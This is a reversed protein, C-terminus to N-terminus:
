WPYSNHAFEYKRIRKFYFGLLIRWPKLLKNRVIESKPRDIEKLRRAQIPFNALKEWNGDNVQTEQWPIVVHTYSKVLVSFISQDHRHEIFGEKNPKLSRKDSILEKKIDCLEAFRNIFDITRNTKKLLFCGAWYQHSNCIDDNDYAGLVNLVDGKTWEKEVTPQGFVLIDNDYVLLNIYQEFKKLSITNANWYIGADSWFLLDGYDMKTLHESVIMSKWAWYGYGRRYLWPKLNRWYNKTLCDDQTLFYREDFPFDKTQEELRKLSNRYRKDAFSVLILKSM